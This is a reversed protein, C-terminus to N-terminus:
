KISLSGVCTPLSSSISNRVVPINGFNAKTNNSGVISIILNKYAEPWNIKLLDIFNKTIDLYKISTPLIIKYKINDM